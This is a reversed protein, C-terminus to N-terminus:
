FALIIATYNDQHPHNSDRIMRDMVSAAQEADPYRKLVDALRDENLINYVGDSVLLLRDGCERDFRLLNIRRDPKGIPGLIDPNRIGPNTQASGDKMRYRRIFAVEPAEGVAWGMKAPQLDALAFRAADAMRRRVFQYYEAELPDGTDNRVYPGTHIHTNHIYVSELPLGNVQAV